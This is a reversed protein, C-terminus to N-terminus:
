LYSEHEGERDACAPVRVKKRFGRSSLVSQFRCWCPGPKQANSSCWQNKQTELTFIANPPVKCGGLNCSGISIVFM